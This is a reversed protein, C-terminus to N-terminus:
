KYIRHYTKFIWNTELYYKKAQERSQTNEVTMLNPNLPQLIVEEQVAGLYVQIFFKKSGSRLLM